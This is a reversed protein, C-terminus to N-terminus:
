EVIGRTAKDIRQCAYGFYVPDQEIGIFDKGALVAAVGTTGSGLFPDLIRRAKISDCIYRVQSLPRPCPVPNDRQSMEWPSLEAMHWNRPVEHFLRSRGSWFIVPDWAFCHPRDDGAPFTKCAALIDFGPPFWRHWDGSRLLSQWVFCPGDSTVRVLEPVLRRMFAHYAAPSDDYSRYRFGIGYPPDTVVADVASLSRLVDFANGLYLTARGIVVKRSYTSVRSLPQSQSAPRDLFFSMASM